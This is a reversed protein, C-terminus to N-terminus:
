SHSMHFWIRMLLDSSDGMSVFLNGLEHEQWREIQAGSPEATSWWQERLPSLAATLDITSHPLNRQRHWVEDSRGAPLEIRVWPKCHSKDLCGGPPVDQLKERWLADSQNKQCQRPFSCYGRGDVQGWMNMSAQAAGCDKEKLGLMRCHQCLSMCILPKLTAPYCPLTQLGKTQACQEM